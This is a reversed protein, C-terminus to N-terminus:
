ILMKCKLIIHSELNFVIICHFLFSLVYKYNQEHLYRQTRQSRKWNQLTACREAEAHAGASLLQLQEVPCTRGGGAGRPNDCM